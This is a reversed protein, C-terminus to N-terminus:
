PVTSSLSSSISVSITIKVNFLTTIKEKSVQQLNLNLADISLISFIFKLLFVEPVLFSSAVCIESIITIKLDFYHLFIMYLILTKCCIEYWCLEHLGCNWNYRSMMFFFHGCFTCYSFYKRDNRVDFWIEWDGGYASGSGWIKLFTMTM